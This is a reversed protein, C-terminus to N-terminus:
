WKTTKRETLSALCVICSDPTEVNEMSELCERGKKKKEGGRLTGLLLVLCDLLRASLYWAAVEGRRLPRIDRCAGASYTTM